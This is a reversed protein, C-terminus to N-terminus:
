GDRQADAILGDLINRLADATVPGTVKRVIRGEADIFFKEPVGRVGYSVAMAGRPDLINLYAADYDEIHDLAEAPRDWVAIGVFEVADGQYERYVEALAPAEIRCAACWSSWFDVMVVRGRLDDLHVQQGSVLDYGGFYPAMRVAVQSESSEEHVLVGGPNENGRFQSWLLLALIAIVPTMSVLFFFLRRRGSAPAGSAYVGTQTTEDPSTM